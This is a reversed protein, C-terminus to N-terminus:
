YSTFRFFPLHWFFRIATRFRGLRSSRPWSIRRACKAWHPPAPESSPNKQSRHQGFTGCDRKLCCTHTFVTQYCFQLMRWCAGCKSPIVWFQHALTSSPHFSWSIMYKTNLPAQMYIPPSKTSTTKLSDCWHDSIRNTKIVPMRDLVPIGPRGSLIVYSQIHSVPPHQM